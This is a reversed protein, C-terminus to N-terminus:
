LVLRMYDSSMCVGDFPRYLTGTTIDALFEGADHYHGTIPDYMEVDVLRLWRELYEFGTHVRWKKAHKKSRLTDFGRTLCFPTGKVVVYPTRSKKM